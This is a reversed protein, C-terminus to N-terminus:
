DGRLSLARNILKTRERYTLSEQPPGRKASENAVAGIKWMTETFWELPNDPKKSLRELVRAKIDEQEQEAKKRPILLNPMESGAMQFHEAAGALVIDVRWQPWARQIHKLHRAFFMNPSHILMSKTSPEIFIYADIWAPDVHNSVELVKELPPFNQIYDLLRPGNALLNLSFENTGFDTGATSILTYIQRDPHWADTIGHLECPEEAEPVWLVDEAAYGMHVAIDELRSLRRVEWGWSKWLAGMLEFFYDSEAESLDSSGDLVLILKEDSDLGVCGEASVDDLWWDVKEHGRIYREVFKPGWFLQDPLQLASWHGYFLEINGRDKIAFSCRHGM